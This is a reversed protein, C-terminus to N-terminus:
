VVVRGDGWRQLTEEIESSRALVQASVSLSPLGQPAELPLQDDELPSTGERAQGLELSVKANESGDSHLKKHYVFSVSGEEKADPVQSSFDHGYGKTSVKGKQETEM